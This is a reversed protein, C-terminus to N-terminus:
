RPPQPPEMLARIAEFVGRFQADYKRELAAVKRALDEHSLLMRRLLVFARMIAINFQIAQKSNLISSLMAVGQETSVNPLYRRGGWLRSTVFQSRLNLYEEETLLFMFDDPFRDRNRRVAQNFVKTSVGYLDALDADLMVRHGRITRIRRGGRGPKSIAIQARLNETEEGKSRASRVM